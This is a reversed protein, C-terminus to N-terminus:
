EELLKTFIHKTKKFLNSLDSNISHKKRMYKYLHGGMEYEFLKKNIKGKLLIHAFALVYKYYHKLRGEKRMRRLCFTFKVKHLFKARVGWQHAQQILEHDEGIYVDESFGGILFFLQREIIINGGTSFPKGFYQSIEILFNSFNFILSIQSDKEDPIAYPIFLLGKLKNINKFLSKCFFSSLRTDADLFVLYKGIAAKAGYNRQHAVKKEKTELFTLRLVKTYESVINRTKDISGGDVIIVEFNKEKQNKLDNLLKPLFKEENLTPIVISFFPEIM